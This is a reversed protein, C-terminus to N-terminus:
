ARLLRELWRARANRADESLPADPALADFGHVGGPWVHLEADGGCEPEHTQEVRHEDVDPRDIGDRVDSREGHQKDDRKRCDDDRCTARSAEVWHDRQLGLLM